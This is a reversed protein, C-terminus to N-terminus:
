GVSTKCHRRREREAVAVARLPAVFLSAWALLAIQRRARERRRPRCRRRSPRSASACPARRRVDLPLATTWELRSSRRALAGAARRSPPSRRRSGAHRVRLGREARAWGPCSRRAWTCARGFSTSPTLSPRAAASHRPSPVRSRAAWRRAPARAALARGGAAIEGRPAGRVPAGRHGDTISPWRGHRFREAVRVESGGAHRRACSSGRAGAERWRVGAVRRRRRGARADAPEVRPEFARTEAASTMSLAARRRVSTRPM